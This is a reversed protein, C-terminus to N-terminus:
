QRSCPLRRKRPILVPNIFCITTYVEDSDRSELLKPNLQAAATCLKELEKDFMAIEPSVGFSLHAWLRRLISNSARQTCGQDDHKKLFVQIAELTRGAALHIEGAEAFNGEDEFLGARAVDLDYEAAFEVAEKTSSFLAKAQRLVYLFYTPRGSFPHIKYKLKHERLYYLRSVDVLEHAISSEMKSRHKRIIRVVDDFMGAKRYQEAAMTFAEADYFARAAKRIDGNKMYCDGANRYYVRRGREPITPMKTCTIFAKAAGLFADGVGKSELPLARATERLLYANAVKLERDM